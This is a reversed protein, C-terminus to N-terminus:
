ENISKIPLYALLTANKGVYEEARKNPVESYGEWLIKVKRVDEISIDHLHMQM